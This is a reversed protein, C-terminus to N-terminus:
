DKNRKGERRCVTVVLLTAMISLPLIVFSPLEPLASYQKTLPYHDINNADIVYSTNWVGSNDIETAEPYKNLYDSWYNGRSGDDWVNASSNDSHVQHTNNVFDNLYFMNDSSYSFSIGAANDTINNEYIRNNDSGFGFAELDVGCGSDKMSNGSINNNSSDELVVSANYNATMSNRSIVNYHSQWLIMGYRDNSSVNNGSITNNNSSAVLDIGYDNNTISNRSVNNGSCDSVYVGAYGYLTHGNYYGNTINNECITNNTSFFIMDISNGKYINPEYNCIMNNGSIHNNSSSSIIVGYFCNTLTNGSITNGYSNNLFFGRSFGNIEVNEITVNSRDSLDIGKDEGVGVEPGQLSFGAGDLTMNNRQIVIGDADSTLNGLLTYVDGNRQIPASMPDVNGGARIYVTGSVAETRVSSVDFKLGCDVAYVRGFGILVTLTSLLILKRLTLKLESAM